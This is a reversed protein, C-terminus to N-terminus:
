SAFIDYTQEVTYSYDSGHEGWFHEKIELGRHGEGELIERLSVAEKYTDVGVISSIGLATYVEEITMILILQQSSFPVPRSM